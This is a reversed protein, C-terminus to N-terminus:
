GGVVKQGLNPPPGFPDGAKGGQCQPRDLGIEVIGLAERERLLEVTLNIPMDPTSQGLVCFLSGGSEQLLALRLEQTASSAKRLPRWGAEFAPGASSAP